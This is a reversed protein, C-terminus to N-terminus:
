YDQGAGAGPEAPAQAPPHSPQKIRVAPPLAVKKSTVASGRGAHLILPDRYIDQKCGTEAILQEAL